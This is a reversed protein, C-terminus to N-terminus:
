VSLHATDIYHKHGKEVPTLGTNASCASPFTFAASLPNLGVKHGLYPMKKEKM